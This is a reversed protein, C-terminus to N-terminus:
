KSAEQKPEFLKLARYLPGISSKHHQTLLNAACGYQAVLETARERAEPTILIYTEKM